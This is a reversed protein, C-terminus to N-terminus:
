SKVDTKIVWNQQIAPAENEQLSVQTKSTSESANHWAHTSMRREGLKLQLEQPKQMAGFETKQLLTLMPSPLTRRPCSFTSTQHNCVVAVIWCVCVCVCSKHLGVSKITVILESFEKAVKARDNASAEDVLSKIFHLTKDSDWVSRVIPYVDKLGITYLNKIAFLFSLCMMNFTAVRFTTAKSSWVKQQLMFTAQNVTINYILFASPNWGRAAV